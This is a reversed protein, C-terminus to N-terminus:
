LLDLQLPSKGELEPPYQIVCPGKTATAILVGELLRLEQLRQVIRKVIGSTESSCHLCIESDNIYELQEDIELLDMIVASIQHMGPFAARELPVLVVDNAALSLLPLSRLYVPTPETGSLMEATHAGVQILVWM